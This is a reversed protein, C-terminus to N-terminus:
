KKLHIEKCCYCCGDVNEFYKKAEIQAALPCIKEELYIINKGKPRRKCNQRHIKHIKTSTRAKKNLIYMSKEGKWVFYCFSKYM